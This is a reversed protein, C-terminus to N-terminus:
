YLNRREKLYDLRLMEKLKLEHRLLVKAFILTKERSLVEISSNKSKKALKFPALAQLDAKLEQAEIAEPTAAGLKSYNTMCLFFGFSLLFVLVMHQM